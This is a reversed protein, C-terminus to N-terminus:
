KENKIKEITEDIFKRHSKDMEQLVREDDILILMTWKGFKVTIKNKYKDILERILNCLAYATDSDYSKTRQCNLIYTRIFFVAKQLNEDSGQENKFYPAYAIFCAEYIRANYYNDLRPNKPSLCPNNLQQDVISYFQDLIERPWIFDNKHDGNVYKIQYLMQGFSKIFTPVVMQKHYFPLNNVLDFMQIILETNENNVYIMFDSCLIISRNIISPSQAKFGYKIFDNVFPSNENFDKGLNICLSSLIMLINEYVIDKHMKVCNILLEILNPCLEKFEYTLNNIFCDIVGLIGILRLEIYNEDTQLFNMWNEFKEIVKPFQNILKKSQPPSNKILATLAGFNADLCDINIIKAPDDISGFLTEFFKDLYKYLKGTDISKFLSIALQFVSFILNKNLNPDQLLYLVFKVIEKENAVSECVVISRSLAWIAAYPIPSSTENENEIGIKILNCIRNSYQYLISYSKSRKSCIGNILALSVFVGIIDNDNYIYNRIKPLAIKLMDENYLITFQRILKISPIGTQMKNQSIVKLLLMTLQEMATKTYGRSKNGSKKEYKCFEIWFEISACVIDDNPCIIGKVSYDFITPLYVPADNYHYKIIELLIEFLNQYHAIDTKPLASSYSNLLSKTLEENFIIPIHMILDLISLISFDFIIKSNSEPNMLNIILKSLFRQFQLRIFDLKELKDSFIPLIMTEHFFTMIGYKSYGPVDDNLFENVLFSISNSWYTDNPDEIAFILAYILSSINRIVDEEIHIYRFIYKKLQIRIENMFDSYWNQNIKSLPFDDTPTLMDKISLLCIIIRSSSVNPLNFVKFVLDYFLVTNGNRLSIIIEGYKNQNNEDNNNTCKSISDLIQLFDNIEM